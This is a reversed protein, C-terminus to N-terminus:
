AAAVCSRSSYNSIKQAKKIIEGHQERNSSDTFFSGYPKGYQLYYERATDFEVFNNIKKSANRTLMKALETRGSQTRICIAKCLKHLRKNASRSSNYRHIM